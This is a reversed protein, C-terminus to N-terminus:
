SRGALHEMADPRTEEFLALEVGALDRFVRCPGHPVEVEEGHPEWGAAQMAKVAARLDPVQYVPMVSGPPRHDALLVPVGSGVEVAAVEAGFGHLDWLLTAGAAEVYQRAVTAPEKAGVYLFRLPGLM